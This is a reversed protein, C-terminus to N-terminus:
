ELEMQITLVHKKCTSCSIEAKAIVKTDKSYCIGACCGAQHIDSEIKAKAVEGCHPCVIELEPM